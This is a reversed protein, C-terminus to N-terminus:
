KGGGGTAAQDDHRPVTSADPWNPIMSRFKSRWWYTRPYKGALKPVGDGITEGFWKGDADPGEGTLWLLAERPVVVADGLAATLIARVEKRAEDQAIASIEANAWVIPPEFALPSYVRAGREVMQDTIM